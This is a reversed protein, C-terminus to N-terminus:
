FFQANLNCLVILKLAVLEFFLLVLLNEELSPVAGFAVQVLRDSALMALLAVAADRHIVM